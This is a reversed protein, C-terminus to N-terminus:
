AALMRFAARLAAGDFPEVIWGAIGAAKGRAKM